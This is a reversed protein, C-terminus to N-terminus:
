GVPGLRLTRDEVLSRRDVACPIGAATAERAGLVAFTRSRELLERIM